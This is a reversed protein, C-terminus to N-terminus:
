QKFGLVVLLRMKVVLLMGRGIEVEVTTCVEVDVIVNNVVEGVVKIGVAVSVAMAIGYEDAESVVVGIEELMVLEGECGVGAAGVEVEESERSPPMGMAAWTEMPTMTGTTQMM